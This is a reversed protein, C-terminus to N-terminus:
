IAINYSYMAYLGYVDVDAEDDNGDYRSWLRITNNNCM